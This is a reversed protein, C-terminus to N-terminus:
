GRYARPSKGMTQRFQRSFLYPNSFGLRDAIESISLSSETLLLAAHRVRQQVIWSKPAVGFTRRFVRAFYDPSLGVADALTRTTLPRGEVIHTEAKTLLLRRQSYPLGAGGVMEDERLMESLVAVLLGRLRLHRNPRRAIWEDYAAEFLPLLSDARARVIARSRDLVLQHKTSPLLQFRWHYFTFPMQPDPAVTHPMGPPLLMATMPLAPGRYGPVELAATEHLFFTLYHEEVVRHKLAWDAAVRTRGFREVVLKIRPDVVAQLWDPDPSSLSSM